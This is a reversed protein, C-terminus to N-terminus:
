GDNNRSTADQDKSAVVAAGALKALMDEKVVDFREREEAAISKNPEPKMRLPNILSKGRRVEYHLHPGTSIGTSGVYGIVDGQEVKAGRRMGKKFRSLHGYATSYSNKHKIVVFKGYGRKWGAFTVKGSGAAEVPTGTPAAYDIGHHPRYRKLIPHYRRRSFYSSIRRYRLPSKLLTRRLSRGEADYYGSGGEADEYYIAVARRGDNVMEAGLIKGAKVSRGEVYVREYFIGFTDGKRIDSAFDVDWAFIDSFGIITQPDAGAKIGAEYLSNKITGAVRTTKVEWPLEELKASYGDEGSDDRRIVLMDFEGLRYEVSEFRGDAMHVKLVTGRRLKSLNYVPRAIRTMKYIESPHIDLSTMVSYFTDDSSLRFEFSEPAAAPEEAVPGGTDAAVRLVPVVKLFRQSFADLTTLFLISFLISAGALVAIVVSISFGSGKDRRYRNNM